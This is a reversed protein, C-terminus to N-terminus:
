LSITLRPDEVSILAALKRALREGATQPFCVHPDRHISPPRQMSLMKMLRSHRESFYSDTYRIPGWSPKSASRLDPLPQLEVIALPRVRRQASRSQLLRQPGCNVLPPPQGRYGRTKWPTLVILVRLTFQTHVPFSVRASSSFLRRSFVSKATM